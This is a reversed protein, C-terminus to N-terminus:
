LSLSVATSAIAIYGFGMILKSAMDDLAAVGINLVVKSDSSSYSPGKNVVVVLALREGCKEYHYPKWGTPVDTSIKQGQGGFSHWGGASMDYLGTTPLGLGYNTGRLLEFQAAGDPRGLWCNLTLYNECASGDYGPWGHQLSNGSNTYEFTQDMRAVYKNAAMTATPPDSTTSLYASPTLAKHADWEAWYVEYDGYGKSASSLEFAPAGCKAGILVACKQRGHPFTLTGRDGVADGVTNTPCSGNEAINAISHKFINDSFKNTCLYNSDSLM